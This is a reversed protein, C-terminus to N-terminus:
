ELMRVKITDTTGVVGPYRGSATVVMDGAHLVKNKLLWDTLKTAALRNDPRVYSKIGFCIALQQAVGIDSTVAIIPQAPRRACIQLATAGSKTEAVIAKAGIDNALSIITNCIAEQRGAMKEYEHRFVVKKPMNSQTHLIIRKMVKVAEIPYKGNATEDSLMVCDAGIITATAVDSVEARTPEPMDIMSALMQTAVVTPKAYKQGLDIITRQVIPVSEALTEIALDGRAVMAGDAEQIIEEINEVAARTEIKAMIRAISGHSRLIKRLNRIDDATQVFSMAIWDVGKTVGFAIDKKDKTTIVDGGFDTDPLNIGKRRILIGDNEARAHITGDVSVSTISTRLKGDYLYMTEGRKVKKSLDYQIPIVGSQEYDAGYKFRLFQGQRVNVVGDFDGLRIKPGQLDQIISVPKGFEKSAERVWKIQEIREEHTGHSFNLRIGNAGAKVLHLILDYSMTSPGLTAIIKTRKFKSIPVNPIRSTSDM